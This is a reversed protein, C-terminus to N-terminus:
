SRYAMAVYVSAAFLLGNDDVYEDLAERLQGLMAEQSEAPLSGVADALPSSAAELRAFEEVSDYRAPAIVHMIRVDNFGAGSVLDRLAATTLDAFPSLMIDRVDEGIYTSV